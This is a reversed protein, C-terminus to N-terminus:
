GQQKKAKLRASLQSKKRAANNKHIVGRGVTRDIESCAKRFAAEAEDTSGHQIRERAEKVAGRM